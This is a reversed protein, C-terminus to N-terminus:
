GNACHGYIQSGLYHGFYSGQNPEFSTCDKLSILFILMEWRILNPQTVGGVSKERKRELSQV